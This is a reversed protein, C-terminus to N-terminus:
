SGHGDAVGLHMRLAPCFTLVPPRDAEGDCDRGPQV